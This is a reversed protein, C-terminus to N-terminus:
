LPKVQAARVAPVTPVHCEVVLRGWRV